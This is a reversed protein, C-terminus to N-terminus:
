VGGRAIGRYDVWTGGYITRAKIREADHEFSFGSTANEVLVEPEERGNLFGIEFMEAESPSAALYFANTTLFPSAKVTLGFSPLASDSGVVTSASGARDLMLKGSSRVDEMAEVLDGPKVLLTSPMLSIPNGDRDTQEMFLEIADILAARTYGTAAGVDNSHDAHFLVKGDYIAPDDRLNTQIVFKEITRASAAGFRQGWRGLEGLSDNARAEMSIGFMKGYKSVSYSAQEDTFNDLPYSDLEKVEDFDGFSGGAAIYNTKFDSASARNSVDGWVTKVGAYGKAIRLHSVDLMLSDYDDRGFAEIFENVPLDLAQRRANERKPGEQFEALHKILNKM